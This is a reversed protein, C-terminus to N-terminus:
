APSGAEDPPAYLRIAIIRKCTPCPITKIVPYSAITRTLRKVYDQQAQVCCAQLEEAMSETRRKGTEM